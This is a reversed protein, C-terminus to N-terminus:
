CSGYSTDSDVTTCSSCGSNCSYNFSVSADDPNVDVFGDGTTFSGSTYVTANFRFTSCGDLIFNGALNDCAIAGDFVFIAGSDISAKWRDGSTDVVILNSDLTLPGNANAHVLGRNDLKGPGAIKMKGVISLSNTLVKDTAVQIEADNHQGVIEGAGSVTVDADLDLRANSAELVVSGTGAIDLTADAGTVKLVSNNSVDNKLFIDGDIDHTVAGDLTLMKGTVTVSRNSAINLTGALGDDGSDLVPDGQYGGPVSSPITVTDGAAPVSGGTWNDRDNWDRSATGKWNMSAMLSAPRATALGLASTAVVAAACLTFLTKRQM